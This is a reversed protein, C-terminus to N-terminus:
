ERREVQSDRDRTGQAVIAPITTPRPPAIVAAIATSSSAVQFRAAPRRPTFSSSRAAVAVVLLPGRYHSNIAWKPM